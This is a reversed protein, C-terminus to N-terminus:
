GDSRALLRFAEVFSDEARAAALVREPPIRLLDAIVRLNVMWVVNEDSLEIANWESRPRSRFEDYLDQLPGLAASESLPVHLASAGVGYRSALERWSRGGRHLALVAEASIGGRKAILLVVPVEEVSIRSDALIGLEHVSAGFHEAMGNLYARRAVPNQGRAHATSTLLLTVALVAAASRGSARDGIM